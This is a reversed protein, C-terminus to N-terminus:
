VVVGGVQRRDIRVRLWQCGSLSKHVGAPEDVLADGSKSWGGPLNVAVTDFSDRLFPEVPGAAQTVHGAKAANDLVRKAAPGRLFGQFHQAVQRELAAAERLCLVPP